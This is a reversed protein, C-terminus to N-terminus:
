ARSVAVLLVVFFIVGLLVPSGHGMHGFHAFHHFM